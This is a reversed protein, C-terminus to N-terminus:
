RKERIKRTIESNKDAWNKWGDSPIEKGSLDFFGGNNQKNQDVWKKQEEYRAQTFARDESKKIDEVNVYNIVRGREVYQPKALGASRVMVAALIFGAVFFAIYKWKMDKTYVECSSGYVGHVM